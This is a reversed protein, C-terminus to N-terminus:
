APGLSRGLESVPEVVPEAQEDSEWLLSEEADAYLAAWNSIGFLRGADGGSCLRDLVIRESDRLAKAMTICEANPAM